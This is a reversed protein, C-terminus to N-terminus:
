PKRTTAKKALSAFTRTSAIADEYKETLEKAGELDKENYRAQKAMPEKTVLYGGCLHLSNEAM